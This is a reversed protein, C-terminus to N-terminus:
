WPTQPPGAPVARLHERSAPAAGRSGLAAPSLCAAFEIASRRVDGKSLQARVTGSVSRAEDVGDEAGVQM